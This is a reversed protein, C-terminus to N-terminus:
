NTNKENGSALWKYVKYEEKVTEILEMLEKRRRDAEELCLVVEDPTKPVLKYGQEINRQIDNM